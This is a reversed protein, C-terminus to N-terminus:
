GLDSSSHMLGHRLFSLLMVDLPPRKGLAEHDPVGLGYRGNGGQVVLLAYKALAQRLQRPWARIKSGMVDVPRGFLFKPFFYYGRRMSICTRAAVRGTEVAIDCASNGGGIVLVRKGAFPAASKYSHAHMFQGTFEGPYSPMRPDWHHGNAALLYDFREIRRGAPGSSSILWG